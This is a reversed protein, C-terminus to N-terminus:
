AALRRGQRATKPCRHRPARNRAVTVHFGFTRRMLTPWHVRPVVFYLEGDLLRDRHRCSPASFGSVFPELVDAPAEHVDDWVLSAASRELMEMLAAAPSPGRIAPRRRGLARATRELLDIADGAGAV